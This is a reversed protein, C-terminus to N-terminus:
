RERRSERRGSTRRAIGLTTPCGRRRTRRAAQLGAADRRRRLVEGPEAGRRLGGVVVGHLTSGVDSERREAARDGGAHLEHHDRVRRIRQEVRGPM